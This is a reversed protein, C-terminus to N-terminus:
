HNTAEQSASTKEMIVVHQGLLEGSEVLVFGQAQDDIVNKEASSERLSAHFRYDYRVQMPVASKEMIVAFGGLAALTHPSLRYGEAAGKNLNKQVNGLSLAHQLLYQYVQPPISKEMTAEASSNGTIRLDVIRYGAAGLENLKQQAGTLDNSKIPLIQHDMTQGADPSVASTVTVNSPASLPRLMVMKTTAVVSKALANDVDKSEGGFLGGSLTGVVKDEFLVQGDAGNLYRLTVFIRAAGAGGMGGFYRKARNGKDFDTITGTLRLVPADAASPTQGEVLVEQFRKSEKLANALVQPLSAAYDTSFDVGPQVAFPQLQIVHYKDRLTEEGGKATQGSSFNAFMIAAIFLSARIAKDM